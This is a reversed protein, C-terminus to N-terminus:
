PQVGRRARLCALACSPVVPRAHAAHLAGDPASHVVEKGLPCDALHAQGHWVGQQWGRFQM